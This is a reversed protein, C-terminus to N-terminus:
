GADTDGRAAAGDARDAGGARDHAWSGGVRATAVGLLVGLVDAAADAPDGSRAPLWFHQALESTVAHLVLVGVLLPLPLGVRLGTLAVAAFILLHVVWDLHPPGATSVARPWYLVVLNVLVAGAFAAWALRDPPQPGTM